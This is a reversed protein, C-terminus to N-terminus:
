PAGLLDGLVSRIASGATAAVWLGIVRGDNFLTAIQYTLLFFAAYFLGPAKGLWATVSEEIRATIRENKVVVYTLGSGIFAGAVIDTPYHLGLYVRPLSVVFIAHVLILRGAVRSVLGIGIALAFFLTAHDSPFSSWGSLAEVDLADPIQLDIAASHLPRERFPLMLALVRCCLLALFSGLLASVLRTRNQKQNADRQFWVAWFVALVVGGKLLDTEAIVVISFDLLDSRNAFHNLASLIISDLPNM